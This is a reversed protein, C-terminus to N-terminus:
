DHRRGSEECMRLNVEVLKNGNHKRMESGKHVM